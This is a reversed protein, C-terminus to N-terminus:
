NNFQTNGFFALLNKTSKPRSKENRASIISHKGTDSKENRLFIVLTKNYKSDRNPFTTYLKMEFVNGKWSLNGSLNVTLQGFLLLFTITM